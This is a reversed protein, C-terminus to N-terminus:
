FWCVHLYLLIVARLATTLGWTESVAGFRSWKAHTESITQSKKSGIALALFSIQVSGWALKM